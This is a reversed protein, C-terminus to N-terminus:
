AVRAPCRDFDDDFSLWSLEDHDFDGASIRERLRDRVEDPLDGFEVWVESDPSRAFYNRGICDEEYTLGYLGYPDGVQGHEWCLQATEPDIKVGEQKRAALWQRKSAKSRESERPPLVRMGIARALRGLWPRAEQMGREDEPLWCVWLIATRVVNVQM